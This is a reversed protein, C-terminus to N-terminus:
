IERDESIDEKRPIGQQCCLYKERYQAVEVVCM